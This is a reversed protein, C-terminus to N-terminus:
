PVKCQGLRGPLVNCLIGKLLVNVGPDTTIFTQNVAVTRKTVVVTHGSLPDLSVNASSTPPTGASPIVDLSVPLPIVTSVPNNQADKYLGTITVNLLGDYHGVTLTGPITVTVSGTGITPPSAAVQIWPANSQATWTSEAPLVSIDQRYSTPVGQPLMLTRPGTGSALVLRPYAPDYCFNSTSIPAPVQARSPVAYLAGWVALVSLLLVFPAHIRLHDKVTLPNGKM